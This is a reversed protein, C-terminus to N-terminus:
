DANRLEAVCAGLSEDDDGDDLPPLVIGDAIDGFRGKLLAPLEDHRGCVVLEDLIPDTLVSPLEDWLETRVLSRLQDPLGAWGRRTLGAAYAPTSYLFALMRRQRERERAVVEDTSGTAIATSAVVLPEDPRGAADAGRRLAPRVVDRLYGPDSNTSHTVIGRALGGALECMGANVAGLWIPPRVADSPGPNFYPQMRTLRYNESDFHVADGTRFADFLADLAGVYDRLRAIPDTWPMGYRDRINQKIQTGLGLEFRGGSLVSLDWASYATLTPSRVFALTVATRVTIRTTHELALLSVALSDHVTEAVHLGDCGLSEARRAYDATAALPTRPDLALYVKM